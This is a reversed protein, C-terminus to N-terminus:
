IFSEITCYNYLYWLNKITINNLIQFSIIMFSKSFMNRFIIYNYTNLLKVILFFSHLTLFYKRQINLDIFPKCYLLKRFLFLICLLYDGKKSLVCHMLHFFWYQKTKKNSIDILLYFNWDLLILPKEINEQLFNYIDTLNISFYFLKAKNYDFFKKILM